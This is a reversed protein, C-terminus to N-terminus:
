TKWDANSAFAVKPVQPDHNGKIAEANLINSELNDYKRAKHAVKHEKSNNPGLKRPSTNTPAQGTAKWDAGSAMLSGDAKNSKHGYAAKGYLEENKRQDATKKHASPIKYQVKQPSGIM